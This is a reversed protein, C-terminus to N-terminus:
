CSARIFLGLAARSKRNYSPLACAACTDKFDGITRAGARSSFAIAIEHEQKWADLVNTPVTAIPGKRKFSRDSFICLVPDRQNAVERGWRSILFRTSLYIDAEFVPHHITLSWASIWPARIGSLPMPIEAGGFAGAKQVRRKDAVHIRM